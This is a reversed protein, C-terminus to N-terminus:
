RKRTSQFAKWEEDSMTLFNRNATSAPTGKDVKGESQRTENRLKAREEERAKKVQDASEARVKKASEAHVKSVARTLAVKLDAQTQWGEGYRQFAEALVPDNSKIGEEELFSTSWATFAQVEANADPAARSVADRQVQYKLREIEQQQPELGRLSVEVLENELKEIRKLSTDSKAEGRRLTKYATDLEKRIDVERTAWTEEILAKVDERTLSTEQPTQAEATQAEPVPATEPAAQVEPETM